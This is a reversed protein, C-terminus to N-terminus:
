FISRLQSINNHLWSDGTPCFLCVHSYLVAHLVNLMRKNEKRPGLFSLHRVPLISAKLNSECAVVVSTRSIGINLLRTDDAKPPLSRLACPACLLADQLLRGTALDRVPRRLHYFERSVRSTLLQVEIVRRGLLSPDGAKRNRGLASYICPYLRRMNASAPPWRRRNESLDNQFTKSCKRPLRRASNYLYKSPDIATITLFHM